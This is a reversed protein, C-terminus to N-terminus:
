NRTATVTSQANPCSGAGGTWTWTETGTIANQGDWTLAYVSATTGGGEAYSGTLAIARQANMTGTVQNNSSGLFGRASVTFPAAAGSQTLTITESSIEGLDNCIGTEVVVQWQFTWSGAITPGPPPPPPPPPGPPPVVPEGTACGAALLLVAVIGRREM